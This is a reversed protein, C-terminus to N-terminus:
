TGTARSLVPTFQLDTNRLYEVVEERSFWWIRVTQDRKRPPFYGTSLVASNGMKLSNRTRAFDKPTEVTLTTYHDIPDFHQLSYARTLQVLLTSISSGRLRKDRWMSVGIVIRGSLVPLNDGLQVRYWDDVPIIDSYLRGSRYEGVLDDVCVLRNAHCALVEERENRLALWWAVGPGLIVKRPDCIESLGPWGEKGEMELRFNEFDASLTVSLELGPEALQRKASQIVANGLELEQVSIM